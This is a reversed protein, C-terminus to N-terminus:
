DAYLAKIRGFTTHRTPTAACTACDAVVEGSGGCVSELTERCTGDPFCCFVYPHHVGYARLQFAVETAAGDTVESLPTWDPSESSRYYGEYGNGLGSSWGWETPGCFAVQISIFYRVGETPYFAEIETCYGHPHGPFETVEHRTTVALPDTPPGGVSTYIRVTVDELPVESGNWFVGWWAVAELHHGFGAYGDWGIFDDAVESTFPYCLDDQSRIATVGDPLQEWALDSACAGLLVIWPIIM